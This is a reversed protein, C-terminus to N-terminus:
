DFKLVAHDKQPYFMFSKQKSNINTKVINQQDEFLDFLVRNSIEISKIANVQEIEIYCKMIDADYAKGIFQLEVPKGNIKIKLKDSLYRAIYLDVNETENDGALTINEDYRERLLREFDDIFIRSIIQVAQKDEVYDIQTVSVYYKHVGTFACLPIIFLLLFLRNLKM